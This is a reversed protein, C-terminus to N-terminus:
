TRRRSPMFAQEIRGEINAISVEIKSLKSLVTDNVVEHRNALEEIKRKMEENEKNCLEFKLENKEQILEAEKKDSRSKSELRSFWIVCGILAGSVAVLAQVEDAGWQALGNM